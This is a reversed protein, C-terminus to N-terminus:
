AGEAANGTDGALQEAIARLQDRQGQDLKSLAAKVDRKTAPEDSGGDDDISFAQRELAVWNKAAASLDKIVGARSPLGVAKLMANRRMPSKDGATEDEIMEELEGVHTTTADLEDLLRLTLDRGRGIAHRHQRVVEVQRLAAAEVTQTENARREQSGQQSGADRVLKARAQQRVKDSLDRDWDEARAKKRIATDSLGHQRAIERTSLQGARFEREIAEWDTTKTM